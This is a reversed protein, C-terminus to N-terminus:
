LAGSLALEVPDPASSKPGKRVMVARRTIRTGWCGQENVSLVSVNMVTGVCKWNESVSCTNQKSKLLMRLKWLEQGIKTGGERLDNRPISSLMFLLRVPSFSLGSTGALCLVSSHIIDQSAISKPTCHLLLCPCSSHTNGSFCSLCGATLRASLFFFFFTAGCHVLNNPSPVVQARTVLTMDAAPLLWPMTRFMSRLTEPHPSRAPM